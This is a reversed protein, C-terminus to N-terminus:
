QIVYGSADYQQTGVLFYNKGVLRGFSNANFKVNRCVIEIAKDIHQWVSKAVLQTFANPAASNFYRTMAYM